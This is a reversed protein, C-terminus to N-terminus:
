NAGCREAMPTGVAATTPSPPTRTRGTVVGISIATGSISVTVGVGISTMIGIINTSLVSLSAITRADSKPSGKPGPKGSWDGSRESKWQM